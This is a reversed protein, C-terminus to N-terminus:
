FGMLDLQPRIVPPCMVVRRSEVSCCQNPSPTDGVYPIPAASTLHAARFHVSRPTRRCPPNYRIALRDAEDQACVANHNPIFSSCRRGTRTSSAWFHVSAEHRILGCRFAVDNGATPVARNAFATAAFPLPGPSQLRTPGSRPRLASPPSRPHSLRDSTESPVEAPRRWQRGIKEPGKVRLLPLDHGFDM